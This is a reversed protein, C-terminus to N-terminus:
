FKGWEYGEELKKMIQLSDGCIIQFDLIKKAKEAVFFGYNFRVIDLMRCKSEEVNDSLIDIGYISKLSILCEEESNCKELKRRLIEVLFNGNGCAPELFTHEINEWIESPIINCMDKVIDEPTFVEGFEKVRKKSKILNDRKKGGM